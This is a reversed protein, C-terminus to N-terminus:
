TGADKARERHRALKLVATEKVHDVASREAMRLLQIENGERQTEELQALRREIKDLSVTFRTLLWRLVLTFLVGFSVGGVVQGVISPDPGVQALLPTVLGFLLPLALYSYIM